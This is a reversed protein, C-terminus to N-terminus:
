RAGTGAPVVVVPCSAHRSCKDSVSGLGLGIFGGSGRRGVVLVDSQRSADLLVQAADGPLTDIVAGVQLPEALDEAVFKSVLEEAAARELEVTVAKAWGSERAIRVGLDGWAFVVHLPWGRLRAEEVAWRLAARSDESGDVGVTIRHEPM